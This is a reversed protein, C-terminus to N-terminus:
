VVILGESPGGFTIHKNISFRFASLYALVSDLAHWDTLDSPNITIQYHATLEAMCKSIDKKYHKLKLEAVLRAPYVEIWQASPAKSKLAIARATLGGLFMPSMAKTEIDCQRFFFNQNSKPNKQKLALPISLPADIGILKPSIKDLLKILWQDTNIKKASREIHLQGMYNGFCVVTTGALNSGYDIGVIM